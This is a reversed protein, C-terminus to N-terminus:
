IKKLTVKLSQTSPTGGTPTFTVAIRLKVKGTDLLKRKQKGKAGVVLTAGDQSVSKAPVAGAAAAKAGKGSATLEGHGPLDVRLTATGAKKDTKSLPQAKVTFANTPSLVAQVNLRYNGFFDFLGSEGDALSGVRVAINNQAGAASFRCSTSGSITTLGIFDGFQVPLNVPFTNIKSPTLTRPGDHAVAQFLRFNTPSERFVKMEVQGGGGGANTSWSTITGSGPTYYDAGDNVGGGAWDRGNLCATPDAPSALQGITVSASASSASAILSLAAFCVLTGLRAM